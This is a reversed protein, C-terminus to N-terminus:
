PVGAQEEGTRRATSNLRDQQRTVSAPLAMGWPALPNTRSVMGTGGKYERGGGRERGGKMGKEETEPTRSCGIQLKYKYVPSRM